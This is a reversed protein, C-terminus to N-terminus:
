SGGGRRANRKGWWALAIAAVVAVVFGVIMIINVWDPNGDPDRYGFGLVESSTGLRGAM